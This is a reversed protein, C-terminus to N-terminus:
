AANYLDSYHYKMQLVFLDDKSNHKVTLDDVVVYRNVDEKVHYVVPSASLERLWDATARDVPMTQVIFQEEVNRGFVSEIESHIAYGPTQTKYFTSAKTKFETQDTAAFNFSSWGGLSNLFAFDNVRYLYDPLIGFVLPQSVIEENCCLYVEVRGVKETLLDDFDLRISNGINMSKSSSTHRIVKHMFSGSQSYICYLIGLMKGFKDGEDSHQSDSLLFNFYQKQGKVHMLQPQNTLPKVKRSTDDMSFVYDALNNEELNRTYGNVAYMVDSLYFTETNVGDYRKGVIRYDSVTGTDVWGQRTIIDSSFSKMNRVVSNLDFWVPNGMYAKSQTTIYTGTKDIHQPLHHEGLFVGTNTYFEVQIESNVAGSLFTDHEQLKNMHNTVELFDTSYLEFTYLNKDTKSKFRVEDGTMIGNETSVPAIYIDFNSQLISNSNLCRRLNEASVSLNDNDYYFTKNDLKDKETTATFTYQEGNLSFSFKSNEKKIKLLKFAFDLNNTNEILYNQAEIIESMEMSIFRSDYDFLTFDFQKNVEKSELRIVNNNLKIDFNSQFFPHFGFAESM